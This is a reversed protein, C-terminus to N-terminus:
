ENRKFEGSTSNVKQFSQHPPAQLHYVLSHTSTLSRPKHGSDWLQLIQSDLDRDEEGERPQVGRDQRIAM